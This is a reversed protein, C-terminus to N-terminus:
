HTNGNDKDLIVCYEWSKPVEIGFKHTQKHYRKTVAAIIFIRKKIVYLVWWVFAPADLFNKSVTYEAVEVPKIEKLDVLIEWSTTGDKWEVCLHWGKTTKRVKKNRGHSIYMDACDVAHGDTKHDVIIEMVNFQNCEEDCQAYM